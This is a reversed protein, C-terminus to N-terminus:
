MMDHDVLYSCDSGVERGLRTDWLMKVWDIWVWREFYVMRERKCGWWREHVLRM